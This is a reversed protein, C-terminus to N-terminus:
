SRVTINYTDASILPLQYVNGTSGPKTTDIRITFNNNICEGADQIDWTNSGELVDIAYTASPSHCANSQLTRIPVSPIPYSATANLLADWNDSSYPSYTNLMDDASSIDSIRWSSIDQNFASNAFMRDLSVDRNASYIEWDDLPQNYSSGNFMDVFGETISGHVSEVNWVNLPQNYPSNMFMSSMNIVNRVNWDDLLCNASSDRFLRSMDTITSVDWHNINDIAGAGEFMGRLSTCNSINPADFATLANLNTAGKFMEEVNQWRSDGWQVVDIIAAVSM